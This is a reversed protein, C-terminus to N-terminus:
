SEKQTAAKQGSKNPAPFKPPLPDGNEDVAQVDDLVEFEDGHAVPKVITQETGSDAFRVRIFEPM